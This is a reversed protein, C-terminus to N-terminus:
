DDKTVSNVSKYQIETKLMEILVALDEHKELGLLDKTNEGLKEYSFQIDDTFLNECLFTKLLSNRKETAMCKQVKKRRMIKDYPKSITLFEFLAKQLNKSRPLILDTKRSYWRDFSTKSIQESSPIKSMIGEYVKQAGIEYVKRRLLIQWLEDESQIEKLSLNYKPAERVCMEEEKIEAEAKTIFKELSDQINSLPYIQYDKDESETLKEFDVTTIITPTSYINQEKCIVYESESLKLCQGNSTSIKYRPTNQVNRNYYGGRRDGSDDVHYKPSPSLPIPCKLVEKRYQSSLVARLIKQYEYKHVAYYPNLVFCNLINLVKQGNGLYYPDFSNPYHSYPRGIYHGQYALVIIRKSENVPHYGNDNKYKLSGLSEFSCKVGLGNIFVSLLRRYEIPVRNDVIISVSSVNKIFSTIAPVIVTNWLDMNKQFYVNFYIEDIEEIAKYEKKFLEKIDSNCCLALKNRVEIKSECEEEIVDDVLTKFDSFAETEVIIDKQKSEREFICDSEDPTFTIFDKIEKAEEHLIEVVTRLKWLYLRQLKYPRASFYFFFVNKIGAGLKNLREIRPRQYSYGDGLRGDISKSLFVFLNEITFDEGRNRKLIKELEGVEGDIHFLPSVNNRFSKISGCLKEVFPNEPIADAFPKCIILNKRSDTPPIVKGKISNHIGKKFKYEKVLKDRLRKSCNEPLTVAQARIHLDHILRLQNF